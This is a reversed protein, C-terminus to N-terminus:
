EDYDGREKLEAIRNDISEKFNRIEKNWHRLLGAKRIDNYENWEPAYKDPHALKDEHEAIRKEFKKISRKLSNSDQKAIDAEAFFQMRLKLLNKSEIIGSEDSNDVSKKSNGGGAGGGTSAFRGNPERPQNPNYGREENGPIIVTM